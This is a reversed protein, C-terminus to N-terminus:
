AEGLGELNVEGVEQSRVVEERKLAKLNISYVWLQQHHDMHNM